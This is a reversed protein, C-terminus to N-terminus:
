ESHSNRHVRTLQGFDASQSQSEAIPYAGLNDMHLFFFHIAKDKNIDKDIDKSSHIRNM